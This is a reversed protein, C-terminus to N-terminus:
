STRSPTAMRVSSLGGTLPSEWATRVANASPRSLAFASADTFAMTTVPAPLANEPPASILSNPDGFAPASGLKSEIIRAQSSEAFGMTAAIWLTAM